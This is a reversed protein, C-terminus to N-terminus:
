LMYLKKNSPVVKTTPQVKEAKKEEEKTGDDAKGGSIEDPQESNSATSKEVATKKSIVQSLPGSRLAELEADKRDEVRLKMFKKFAIWLALSLMTLGMLATGGSAGVLIGDPVPERLLLLMGVMYVLEVATLAVHQLLYGMRTVHPKYLAHLQHFFISCSLAACLQLSPYDSLVILGGSLIMKRFIEEVEWFYCNKKYPTYMWGVSDLIEPRDLRQRRRYLYVFVGIPLGIIYIAGVFLFVIYFSWWRDDYCLVSFDAKLYLVGEINVCDSFQM